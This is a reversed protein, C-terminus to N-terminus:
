KFIYIGIVLQPIITYLVRNRDHENEYSNMIGSCIHDNSICYCYYKMYKFILELTIVNYLDSFWFKHNIQGILTGGGVTALGILALRRIKKNRSSKNKEKEEERCFKVLM